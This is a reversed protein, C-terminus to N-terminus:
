ACVTFTVACAARQISSLVDSGRTTTVWKSHHEDHLLFRTSKLGPYRQRCWAHLQELRDVCDKQSVAPRGHFVHEGRYSGGPLPQVQKPGFRGMTVANQRAQRTIREVGDASAANTAAFGWYGGDYVRASAGGDMTQSNLTLNGDVMLIRRKRLEHRRTEVYNM